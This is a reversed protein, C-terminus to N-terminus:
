LTKTKIDLLSMVYSQFQEQAFQKAEDIGRIILKRIGDLNSSVAYKNENTPTVEFRILTNPLQGIWIGQIIEWQLKKVNM